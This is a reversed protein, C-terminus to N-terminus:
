RAMLAYAQQAAVPVKASSVGEEIDIMEKAWDCVTKALHEVETETNAAHFM